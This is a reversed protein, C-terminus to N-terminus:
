TTQLAFTRVFSDTMLSVWEKLKTEHPKVLRWIDVLGHYESMMHIAARDKPYTQDSYKSKDIFADWVQNFDGALIIQGDLEGLIKNLKHFFSPDGINPAYINCLVVATGNITATNESVRVDARKDGNWG